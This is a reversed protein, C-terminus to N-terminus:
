HKLKKALKKKLRQYAQEWPQKSIKSAEGHKRRIHPNDGYDAARLKRKPKKARVRRRRM